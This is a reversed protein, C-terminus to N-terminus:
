VVAFNLVADVDSPVGVFEATLLDTPICEVGCEELRRRAAEDTFRALGIVQHDRSLETAVVEAVQGTVGTIVVTRPSASWGSTPEHIADSINKSM